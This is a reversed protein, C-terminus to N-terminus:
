SSAPADGRDVDAQARLRAVMEPRARMYATGARCGWFYVALAFAAV